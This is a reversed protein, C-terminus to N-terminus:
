RLWAVPDSAKQRDRVEFYLGPEERGPGTGATGVSGGVAVYSGAAVAVSQLWAYLTFVGDGHDLIVLNGYEPLWQAYVARGSYVAHVPEGAALAISVGNSVTWADFRPHRHRGFTETLAGKAQWDLVGKWPRIGGSADAPEGSSQKALTELLRELREAKESLSAVEITHSAASSREQALLGERHHRLSAMNSLERRQSLFTQDMEKKLKEEVVLDRDLREHAARYSALLAGDRRALADLRGVAQLFGPVDRAELLVRFYGYRGLRHLVRARTVLAKAFRQSAAGASEREIETARLQRELEERRAALLQTEHQAIEIRWGLRQIEESLTSVNKQSEALRGRLSSIRSRIKSLDAQRQEDPSTTQSFLGTSLLLGALFLARKM